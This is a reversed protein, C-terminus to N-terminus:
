QVKILYIGAPQQQLDLAIEVEGADTQRLLRQVEQGLMNLLTVTTEARNAATFRLVANGNNPNPYIHLLPEEKVEAVGSPLAVITSTTNTIIAENFDGDADSLQMIFQNGQLYNTTTNQLSIQVTKGACIPALAATVTLQARAAIASCLLVLFLLLKKMTYDAYSPDICHALPPNRNSIVSALLLDRGSGRFKNESLCLDQIHLWPLPM